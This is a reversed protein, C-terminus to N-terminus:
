DAAKIELVWVRRTVEAFTLGTQASLRQLTSPVDAPTPAEGVPTARRVVYVILAEPVRPVESIVPRGLYAGVQKLFGPFPLQGSGHQFGNRAADDAVEIPTEATATPERRFEGRVVVVKREVEKLAMRFPLM